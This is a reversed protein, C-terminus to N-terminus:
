INRVFNEYPKKCLAHIYPAPPYVYPNTSRVDELPYIGNGCWLCLCVAVAYGPIVIM